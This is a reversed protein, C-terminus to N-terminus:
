GPNALAYMIMGALGLCVPALILILILVGVAKLISRLIPESNPVDDDVDLALIARTQDTKNDDM